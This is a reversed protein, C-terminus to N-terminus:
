FTGRGDKPETSHICRGGNKKREDRLKKKGSETKLTPKNAEETDETTATHEVIAIRNDTTHHQIRHLYRLM